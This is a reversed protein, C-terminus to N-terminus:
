YTAPVIGLRGGDTNLCLGNIYAGARSCLFLVAGAIDEETGIRTLPVITNPISGLQTCDKGALFLM